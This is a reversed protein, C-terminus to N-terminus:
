PYNDDRKDDTEGIDPVLKVPGSTSEDLDALGLFGLELLRGHQDFSPMDDFGPFERMPLRGLRDFRPRHASSLSLSQFLRDIKSNGFLLPRSPLQIGKGGVAGAAELKTYLTDDKKNADDKSTEELLKVINDHGAERAM